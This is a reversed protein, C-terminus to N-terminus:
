PGKAGAREARKKERWWFGIVIGAAILPAFVMLAGAWFMALSMSDEHM